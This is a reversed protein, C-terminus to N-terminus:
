DLVMLQLWGEPKSWDPEVWIERNCNIRRFSAKVVSACVAGADGKGSQGQVCRREGIGETRTAAAPIWTVNVPLVIKVRSHRVDQAEARKLRAGFM